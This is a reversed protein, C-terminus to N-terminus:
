KSSLIISYIYLLNKYLLAQKWKFHDGNGLTLNVRPWGEEQLASKGLTHRQSTQISEMCRYRLLKQVLIRADKVLDFVYLDGSWSSGLVLYLLIVIYSCVNRLTGHTSKIDVQLRCLCFVQLNQILRCECYIRFNTLHVQPRRFWRTLLPLM